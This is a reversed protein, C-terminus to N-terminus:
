LANKLLEKFTNEIKNNQERQEKMKDEQMKNIIERPIINGFTAVLQVNTDEFMIGNILGHEKAEKATFWTEKNMLSLIEEESKGTKDTYDSAVAKNAKQLVESMHNMANYDGGCCASVNHIMMTATPSMYSECAMAIVSAASAAVGVINCVKKRNEARLISYIESGAFVDGGPSNIEIVIDRSDQALAKEVDKPCTSEIDFWDYIWKEDNSVITGKINVKAM